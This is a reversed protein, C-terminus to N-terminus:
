NWVGIAGERSVREELQALNKRCYECGCAFSSFRLHEIERNRWSESEPLGRELIEVARRSVGFLTDGLSLHLLDGADDEVKYIGDTIIQQRDRLSIIEGPKLRPVSSRRYSFLAQTKSKRRLTRM